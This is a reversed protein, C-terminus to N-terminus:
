RKKFIFLNYFVFSALELQNSSQFLNMELFCFKLTFLMKFKSIRSSYVLTITFFVVM